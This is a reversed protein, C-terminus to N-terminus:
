RQAQVQIYLAHTKTFYLIETFKQIWEKIMLFFFSKFIIVYKEDYFLISFM